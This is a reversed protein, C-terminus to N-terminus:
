FTNLDILLGLLSNIIPMIPHIPSVFESVLKSLTHAPTEGKAREKWAEGATSVPGTADESHEAQASAISGAAGGDSNGSGCLEDVDTPLYSLISLKEGPQEPNPDGARPRWYTTIALVGGSPDLSRLDSGALADFMDM